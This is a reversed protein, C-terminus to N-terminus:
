EGLRERERIVEEDAKTERENAEADKQKVCEGAIREQQARSGDHLEQAACPEGDAAQQAETEAASGGCGSLAFVVAILIAAQAM